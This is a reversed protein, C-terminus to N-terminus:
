GYEVGVPERRKMEQDENRRSLGKEKKQKGTKDVRILFMYIEFGPGIYSLFPENWEIHHDGAADTTISIQM